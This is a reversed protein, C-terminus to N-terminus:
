MAEPKLRLGMRVYGRQGHSRRRRQFGVDKLRRGFSAATEPTRDQETCWDKFAEFLQGSDVEFGEGVECEQSLFARLMDSEARYAETAAEVAPPLSLGATRWTALGELAWNLVGSLERHLAVDFDKIREAESLTTAWPILRVRRWMAETTEEIVPRYNTALVIKFAPQYDFSNQFLFRANITDGGTLEKILSEHLRQGERTEIATVLRKGRLRALDESAGLGRQQTTLTSLHLSAAYPGMLARLVSITTSKGNKGGGWWVWFCQETTLGTLLYGVACQVHSRVGPDPLVRPLHTATWRPATATPDFTVPALLTLRDAPDHPRLTGTRLDLTGNAVNFLWPDRDFDEVRASLAPESEALKVMALIRPASQSMIAWRALGKQRDTGAPAMAAEQLIQQTVAKAARVAAEPSAEWYQGNFGLWGLGRVYCLHGAFARALRQGNGLDTCPLLAVDDSPSYSGYSAAIDRLEGEPLPPDHRAATEERLAALIAAESMGRRRMSGALSALEPNRGPFSRPERGPQTPAEADDDPAEETIRRPDDLPATLWHDAAAEGILWGHEAAWFRSWHARTHHRGPLRLWNGYKGPPLAAQKPFTEVTAADLECDTLSRHAFAFLAATAVPAAFRVWVHYGGTGNSDEVLPHLGLLSLYCALRQVRDWNAEAVAVNQADHQDLDFGLWRSTSDPGTAHLGIVDGPDAGAFHAALLDPTLLRQGREAKPPCTRAKQGTPRVHPAFYQGWADRRNALARDAFAALEDARDGWGAAEAALDRELLEPTATM